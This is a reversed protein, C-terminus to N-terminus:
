KGTTCRLQGCSNVAKSIEAWAKKKKENSVVDCFKGSIIDKKHTVNEVLIELKEM